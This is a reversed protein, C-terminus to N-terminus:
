YRQPGGAVVVVLCYVVLSTNEVQQYVALNGFRTSSDVARNGFRMTTTKSFLQKGALHKIRTDYDRHQKMKQMQKADM